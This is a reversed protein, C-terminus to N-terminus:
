RGPGEPTALRRGSRCQVVFAMLRGAQGRVSTRERARGRFALSDSQTRAGAFALYGM